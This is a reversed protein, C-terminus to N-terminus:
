AQALEAQLTVHEVRQSAAGREAAQGPQGQRAVAQAAQLTLGEEGHMRQGDLSAVTGARFADKEHVADARTRGCPQLREPSQFDEEQAVILACAQLTYLLAGLECPKIGDLVPKWCDRICGQAM